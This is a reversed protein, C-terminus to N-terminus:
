PKKRGAAVAALFYRDTKESNSKKSLDRATNGKASKLSVDAGHRVLWTVAELLGRHAAVMLPTVKKDPTRDDVSFGLKMVMPLMKPNGTAIHMLGYGSAADHYRWDAKAKILAQFIEPENANIAYWLPVMKQPDKYNPNAGHALLWKVSTLRGGVIACILPTVNHKVLSDVKSGSKLAYAMNADKGSMAAYFMANEGEIAKVNTKLGKKELYRILAVDGGAFAMLMPNFGYGSRVKLLSPDRDFMAILQPTKTNYIKTYLHGPDHLNGQGNWVQANTIDFTVYADTTWFEDPYTINVPILGSECYPLLSGLFPLTRNQISNVPFPASRYVVKKNRRITMAIDFHTVELTTWNTVGIQFYHLRQGATAPTYHIFYDEKIFLWKKEAKTMPRSNPVQALAIGSLFVFAFVFTLFGKM